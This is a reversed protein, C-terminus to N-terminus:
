NGGKTLKALEEDLGNMPHGIWAIKGDKVIFATPIGNQGAAEMWDSAMSKKDDDVAVTYSMKDGMGQVFDTVKTLRAEQTKEREYVSVGIVQAKGDYKKALETLHPISTRCPPCWTAWFEVVYLKSSDLKDIPKGKVWKAVKIAPAASGPGLSAAASALLSGCLTIGCVLLTLKKNMNPM